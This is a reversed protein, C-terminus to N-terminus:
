GECSFSSLLADVKKLEQNNVKINEKLKYALLTLYKEPVISSRKGKQFDENNYAIAKYDSIELDDVRIQQGNEEVLTTHSFANLVKYIENYNNGELYKKFFEKILEEFKRDKDSTRENKVFDEMLTKAQKSITYSAEKNEIILGARELKKLYKNWLSKNYHGGKMKYFPLNFIFIKKLENKEELKQFIFPFLKNLVYRSSKGGQKEILFMSYLLIFLDSLHAEPKQTLNQLNYNVKLVKM